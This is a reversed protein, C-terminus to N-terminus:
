RQRDEPLDFQSNLVWVVRTGGPTEFQLQREEAAQPQNSEQRAPEFVTSIFVALGAMFALAGAAVAFRGPSLGAHRRDAAAAVIARRMAQVETESLGPEHAVPDNRRLQEIFDEERV